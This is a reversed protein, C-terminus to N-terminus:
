PTKLAVGRGELLVSCLPPPAYYTKQNV